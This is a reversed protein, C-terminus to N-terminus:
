RKSKSSGSAALVRSFLKEPNTGLASAIKIFELIDVRRQGIEYNSVFSQPKGLQKALMDQMIGAEKRATALVEGLKGYERKQIWVIAGWSATPLGLLGSLRINFFGIYTEVM